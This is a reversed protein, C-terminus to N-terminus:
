RAEGCRLKSPSYKLYTGLIGTELVNWLYNYEVQFFIDLLVIRLDKFRMLDSFM